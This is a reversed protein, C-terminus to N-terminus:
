HKLNRNAEKIIDSIKKEYSKCPKMNAADVSVIINRDEYQTYPEEISMRADRYFIIDKKNNIMFIEFLLLDDDTGIDSMRKRTTRWISYCDINEEKIELRGQCDKPREKGRIRKINLYYAQRDDTTRQQHLPPKQVAGRISLSGQAFWKILATAGPVIISALKSAEDLIPYIKLAYSASYSASYYAAISISVAIMALWWPQM